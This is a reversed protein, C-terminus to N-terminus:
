VRCQKLINRPDGEMNEWNKSARYCEFTAFQSIGSSAMSTYNVSDAFQINCIGSKGARSQNSSRLPLILGYICDCSCDGSNAMWLTYFWAKVMISM